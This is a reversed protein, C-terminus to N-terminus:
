KGSRFPLLLQSRVTQSEDDRFEKLGFSLREIAADRSSTGFVRDWVTLVNGYHSNTHRPEDSHHVRHWSAFVFLAGGSKEMWRPFRINAHQIFLLPLVITYFIVFSPFPVGILIFSVTRWMAQVVTELPHVRLSSTSDMEIDSHHVRHVRWLWTVKHFLVHSVYSDLDILVVGAVTGAIPELRVVNLLGWSHERIMAIWYVFWTAAFGNATFCTLVIVLNRLTHRRRTRSHTVQPIFSELTFFGAMLSIILVPQINNLTEIM